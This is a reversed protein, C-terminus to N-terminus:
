LWEREFDQDAKYKVEKASRNREQGAYLNTWNKYPNEIQFEVNDGQWSITRTRIGVQILMARIMQYESWTCEMYNVKDGYKETIHKM